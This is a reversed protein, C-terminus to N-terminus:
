VIREGRMRLEKQHAVVGPSLADNHDTKGTGGCLHCRKKRVGDATFWSNMLWIWGSGDCMRCRALRRM